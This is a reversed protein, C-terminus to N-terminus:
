NMTVSDTPPIIRYVQVEPNEYVLDWYVGRNAQFKDIGEVNTTYARELPGVIIYQANFGLLTEYALAADPTGYISDRVTSVRTNIEEDGRAAARQQRQHHDWGIISPNGTFMAYRNGWGYLVKPATNMEAIVPSGPVNDEIWRMADADYRADFTAVTDSPTLIHISASELFAAGDLGPGVTRDFRDNIKANTAFIPYLVAVFILVGISVRYVIRWEPLWRKLMPLVAGIGLAAAMGWLVWVQLYFKFVTNMRGIDGKLVVLEVACTLGLGLIIFFLTMQWLSQPRERFFLFLSALLLVLTVAPVGWQAMIAVATLVMTGLLIVYFANLPLVSPHKVLLHYWHMARPRKSGATNFTFRALRVIGNHGKGFGFDNILAFFIALLFLGHVIFFDGLTTRLGEWREVSTYASGYASHFPQFLLRGLVIVLAWRWGVAIIGRVTIKGTHRWERLGLGAFAVLAYTPFDWTNIPWLAGLVLAMLGLRLAEAIISDRRPTRLFAVALAIALVTYPLAMMHAHLDAYLFTFWPFENITEPITRTPNWYPWEMRGPMSQGGLIMGRVLGDVSKVTKELGPIGSSFNMQSLQSLNESLVKVEGLNGLVGVFLAAVLAFGLMARTFNVTRGEDTVRLPVQLALVVGFVGTALMSFLTPIILNYAISPMVGTFKTIVGVIIFGYYYYNIYGGAFWPDMPPFYSSKIVANLYAFDMPKEGGLDQHWLDPNAFRIALVLAFFAWFVGEALLMLRLDKGWWGRIMAPMARVNYGAERFLLFVGGLAVLLIALAISLANFQLIKASAIIWVVWTAMLLGLTKAIFYGKDPLGSAVTRLYPIAILGFLQLALIWPVLPFQNLLSNRNFIQAWTGGATYAAEEADTFKLNGKWGAAEIPLLQQVDDFDVDGLVLEEIRARDYTDNKKWIQVRNHDYVHWAEEAGQDPLEIGLFTPYSTFEAVREFGLQGSFLADYYNIVAPFRMPLRAMSDYQRNSSIFIYEVQDLKDFIGLDQYGTVPDQRGYWKVEEDESTIMLTTDVYYQAQQDVPITALDVGGMPLRSTFYDPFPAPRNPRFLPLGDDWVTENAIVAGQPVNDYIWESAAVRTHPRTYISTFGAAYILTSVTVVVMLAGTLWVRLPARGEGAYPATKRAGDFLRILLWAALLILAPYIPLFYRMSKVWQTGQHLFL